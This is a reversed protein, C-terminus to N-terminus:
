ALESRVAVLVVFAIEDGFCRSWDEGPEASRAIAHGPSWRARQRLRGVGPM